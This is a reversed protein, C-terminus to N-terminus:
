RVPHHAGTNRDFELKFVLSDDVTVIEATITKDNVAEIKGVKLRDSGYMVLRGEIIKRVDEVDLDLTANKHGGRNHWGMLHRKSMMMNMHGQSYGSSHAMSPVATAVATALSILAVTAAISVSSIVLSKSKM